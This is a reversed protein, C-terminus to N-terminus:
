VARITGSEGQKQASVYLFARHQVRLELTWPLVVTKQETGGSENRFTLAARGEGSVVYTARNTLPPQPATPLMRGIIWLLVGIGLLSLCGMKLVSAKKPAEATATGCGPCFQSGSALETGCKQCFM